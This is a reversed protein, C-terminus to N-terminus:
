ISLWLEDAVFFFFLSVEKTLFFSSMAQKCVWAYALLRLASAM